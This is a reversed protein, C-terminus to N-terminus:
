QLTDLDIMWETPLQEDQESVTISYSLPSNITIYASSTTIGTVAWTTGEELKFTFSGDEETQLWRKEASEDIVGNIVPQIAISAKEDINVGSLKIQGSVKKKTENNFDIMVPLMTNENNVTFEHYIETWYTPTGFNKIVYDGANLRAEFVYQGNNVSKLRVPVYYKNGDKDQEIDIWAETDSLGTNQLTITVNPGPQRVEVETTQGGTVTFNTDAKYWVGNGSVSIVKYTGSALKLSFDGNEDTNMWKTHHWYIGDDHYYNEEEIPEGEMTVQNGENDYRAISIWGYGIPDLEGFVTGTVNPEPPTVVLEGGIVNESAVLIGDQGITFLIDTEYGYQNSQVNVVKYEGPQLSLKFKYEGEHEKYDIWHADEWDHIGADAPKISLWANEVLQNGEADKVIGVLNPVPPKVQLLGDIVVGNVTSTIAEGEVTFPIYVREWFDWGSIYTVKWDGDDMKIEFYGNEDTNIWKTNNWDHEKADIPKIAIHANTLVNGDKDKVYGKVNPKQPKVILEGNEVYENNVLNGQSDIEFNISVPMWVDYGGAEVVKYKGPQLMLMFQGDEDGNAWKDDMWNEYDVEWANNAPKIKLWSGSVVELAGTEKNYKKVYGTVNPRIEITSLPNGEKDVLVGEVVKFEYNVSIWKGNVWTDNEGWYGRTSYGTVKYDGDSLKVSFEGNSNTNTGFWRNYYDGNSSTDDANLEEEVIKEINVWTDGVPNGNKDLILGTVNPEYNISIMYTDDEANYTVIDQYDAQGLVFEMDVQNWGNPTSIGMIEYAGEELYGIFTGTNSLEDYKVELWSEYKWPNMIYDDYQADNESVIKRIGIGLYDNSTADLDGIALNGKVNPQLIINEANEGIIIKKNFTIRNEKHYDYATEQGAEEQETMYFVDRIVYEEGVKLSLGFYGEEDTETGFWATYDSKEINIFANPIPNGEYDLLQGGFNPVPPTIIIDTAPPEIIFPNDGGPNLEMYRKPTSIAFAEYAKSEDLVIGFSGDAEVHVWKEYLWPAENFTEDSVGSERLVLWVHNFDDDTAWDATGDFPIGQSTGADYKKFVYGTVNDQPKQIILNEVAQGEEVYFKFNVEQWSQENSNWIGKVIYTGAELNVAFHGNEDASFGMYENFLEGASVDAEKELDVWAWPIPNGAEDRVEGSVNPQKVTIVLELKAATTHAETVEFEYELNKWEGNVDYGPVKYLGPELYVYINGSSDTQEWFNMWNGLGEISLGANTVPTGDEYQLSIIVNSSDAKVEDLEIEYANEGTFNSTEEIVIELDMNEIQIHDYTEHNYAGLENFYYTGPFLYFEFVGTTTHAGPDMVQGDIEFEFEIHAEGSFIQGGQTLKIELNPTPLQIDQLPNQENVLVVQGDLVEFSKNIFYMGGNGELSFMRSAASLTYSGDALAIGFNGESDTMADYYTSYQDVIVIHGNNLPMGQSNNVNGFVNISPFVIEETLVAGGSEVTFIYETTSPTHTFGSKKGIVKYEGSALYLAFSGDDNTKVTKGFLEFVEDFEIDDNSQIYPLYQTEIILLKDSYQEGEERHVNGSVNAVPIQINLEFTQGAATVPIVVTEDININTEEYESWIRLTTVKYTGAKLWRDFTGDQNFHVYKKIPENELDMSSLELDSPVFILEGEVGSLINGQEDLVSGSIHTDMNFDMIKETLVHGANDELNTAILINGNFNSEAFYLKAEHYSDNYEDGIKEIMDPMVGAVNIDQKLEFNNAVISSGKVNDDFNVKVIYYKIGDITEEGDMWADPNPASNDVRAQNLQEIKQNENYILKVQVEQNNISVDEFDTLLESTAVEYSFRYIEKGAESNGNPYNEIPMTELYGLKALTIPTQTDQSLLEIYLNNIDGSFNGIAIDVVPNESIDNNLQYAYDWISTETVEWSFVVETDIGYVLTIVNTKTKDVPIGYLEPDGELKGVFSDGEEIYEETNNKDVFHGYLKFFSNEGNYEEHFAVKFPIPVGDGGYVAEVVSTGEIAIQGTENANYLEVEVDNENQNMIEFQPIAPNWLFVVNTDGYYLEIENETGVEVPIATKAIETKTGLEDQALYYGDPVNKDVYHGIFDFNPTYVEGAVTNVFEVKFDTIQETMLVGFEDKPTSKGYVAHTVTPEAGEGNLETNLLEIHVGAELGQYTTGGEVINLQPETVANATLLNLSFPIQTFLFTLILFVSIVRKPVSKHIDQM